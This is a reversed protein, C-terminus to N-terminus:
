RVWEFAVLKAAQAVVPGHREDRCHEWSLPTSCPQLAQLGSTMGSVRKFVEFISIAPVVLEAPQALPEAFAEANPGDGFYELWGSSDVVNV